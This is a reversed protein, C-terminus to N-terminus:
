SVDAFSLRRSFRKHAWFGGVCVAMLGWIAFTSAEPAATLVLDDFFVDTTLDTSQFDTSGNFRGRLQVRWQTAEFALTALDIELQFAAWDGISTMANSFVTFTNDNTANIVTLFIEATDPGMTQFVGSLHLQGSGPELDGQQVLRLRDGIGDGNGAVPSDDAKASNAEAMSFFFNGNAPSIMEHMSVAQIIDSVSEGSAPAGPLSSVGWQPAVAGTEAGPNLLLNADAPSCFTGLTLIALLIGSIRFM